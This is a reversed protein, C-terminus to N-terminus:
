FSSMPNTPNMPFLHRSNFESIRDGGQSQFGRIRSVMEGFGVNGVNGVDEM